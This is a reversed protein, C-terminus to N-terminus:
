LGRYATKRQLIDYVIILKSKKDVNYIIRWDGLRIRYTGTHGKLKVVDLRIPAFSYQLEYLVDGCRSQVDEPLAVFSKEARKTLVIRYM